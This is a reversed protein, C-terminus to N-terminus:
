GEIEEGETIKYRIINGYYDFKVDFNIDFFGTGLDPEEFQSVWEENDDNQNDYYYYYGDGNDYENMNKRCCSM